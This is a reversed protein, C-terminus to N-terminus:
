PWERSSLLLVRNGSQFCTSSPVGEDCSRGFAGLSGLCDVCARATIAHTMAAEKNETAALLSNSGVDTEM